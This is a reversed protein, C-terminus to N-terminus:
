VSIGDAIVAKSINKQINLTFTAAIQVSGESTEAKQRNATLNSVAGGSVNQTNAAGAMETAAQTNSDAIADAEGENYLAAFDESHDEEDAPPTSGGEEDFMNSIGDYPDDPEAAPEPDPDGADAEGTDGGSSPSSTNGGSGPSTTGTAPKTSAAGSASAKGNATLRSISDAKVRVKKARVSRGLTSTASDNIIDIIFTGGAGVGGGVAAADALITRTIENKAIINIEGTFRLKPDTTNTGTDAAVYIGSIDLALVPVIATGGSAGAKATMKETGEYSANINMADLVTDEAARRVSVGNAIKAYNDVGIVGIAIGAGIGVSDSAPSGVTTTGSAAKSDNTGAADATTIFTSKNVKASLDLSGGSLILDRNLEASNKASVVHVTLAGALGLDAATFGAKSIASSSIDKSVASIELGGAEVAGSASNIYAQNTYNVVAVAVGVGLATSGTRGTTSSAPTGQEFIAGLGISTSQTTPMTFQYVGAATPLINTLGIKLTNAKLRYGQAPTIEVTLVTGVQVPASMTGGPTNSVITNGAADKVTITGNTTNDLTLTKSVGTFSVTVTVNAAPMTLRYQNTQGTVAQAVSTAQQGTADTWTVTVENVNYGDNPTVHIIISEGEDGFKPDAYFTGAAANVNSCTITYGKPVFTAGLTADTGDAPM